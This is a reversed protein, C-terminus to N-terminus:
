TWACASDLAGTGEWATSKSALGLPGHDGHRPLVKCWRQQNASPRTRWAAGPRVARYVVHVHHGLPGGYLREQQPERQHILLSHRRSQSDQVSSGTIVFTFEPTARRRSLDVCM